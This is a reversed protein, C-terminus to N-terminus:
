WVKIQYFEQNDHTIANIIKEGLLKSIIKKIVSPEKSFVLSLDKVTCPRHKLTAIIRNEIDEVAWNAYTIANKEGYVWVKSEGLEQKLRNTFLNISEASPSFVSNKSTPRYPIEVQVVDPGIEIINNILDSGLDGCINCHDSYELTMVELGMFGNFIKRFKKYNEIITTIAPTSKAPHNILHFMEQNSTDLKLTVMDLELLANVVHDEGILTGNSLIGVPKDPVKERIIKTLSSLEPNLSPEGSGSYIVIDIEDIDLDVLYKELSQELYAPTLLVNGESKYKVYNRTPGIQCYVCGLTCKKPPLTPDIGLSRGFRWSPVPGYVADKVADM